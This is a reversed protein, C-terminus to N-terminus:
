VEMNVVGEDMDEWREEKHRGGVEMDVGGEEKHM